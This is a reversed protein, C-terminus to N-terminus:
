AQISPAGMRRGTGPLYTLTEVAPSGNWAKTGAGSGGSGGIAQDGRAAAAAEVVRQEGEAPEVRDGGVQRVRRQQEVAEHALLRHEGRLDLARLRREGIQQEVLDVLLRAHRDLIRALHAAAHRRQLVPEFSSRPPSGSDCAGAARSARPAARGDARGRCSAPRPAGSAPTSRRCAAPCRPRRAAAPRRAAPSGAARELAEEVVLGLRRRREDLRRERVHLELGDVREEVAVAPM